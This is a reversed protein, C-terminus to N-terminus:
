PVLYFRLQLTYQLMGRFIHTRSSFVVCVYDGDLLLFVDYSPVVLFREHNPRAAVCFDQLTKSSGSPCTCIGFRTNETQRMACWLPQLSRDYFIRTNSGQGTYPEDRPDIRTFSFVTYCIKVCQVVYSIALLSEGQKGPTSDSRVRRRM